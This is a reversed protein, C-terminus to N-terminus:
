TTREKNFAEYLRKLALEGPSRLADGAPCLCLDEEDPDKSVIYHGYGHCVTCVSM